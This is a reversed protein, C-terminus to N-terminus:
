HRLKGMHLCVFFFLIVLMVRYIELTSDTLFIEEARGGITVLAVSLHIHVSLVTKVGVCLVIAGPGWVWQKVSM